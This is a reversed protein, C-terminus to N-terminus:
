VLWETDDDNDGFDDEYGLELEVEEDTLRVWLLLLQGDDTEMTRAAVIPDKQELGDMTRYELNITKDGPALWNLKCDPTSAAFLLM